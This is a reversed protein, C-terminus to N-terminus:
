EAKSQKAKKEQVPLPAKEYEEVAEVTCPAFQTKFKYNDVTEVVSVVEKVQKDYTDGNRLKVKVKQKKREVIDWSDGNWVAEVKSNDKLKLFLATM